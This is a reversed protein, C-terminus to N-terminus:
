FAVKPANGVPASPAPNSVCLPNYNTETQVICLNMWPAPGQTNWQYQDPHNTGEYSRIVNKGLRKIDFTAFGEGWLEVRRQWWVENVFTGQGVQNGGYASEYHSGYYYEPDRQKAFAELLAKGRSEDQRGAAEAEILMMEEVRMLPIDMVFGVHQNARGEEGGATRFKYEHGGVYGAWNDQRNPCQAMLWDPHDTYAGLAERREDPTELDDIAFDVFWGRRADTAPITSYLHRDILNPYGYNAAYGCGSEEPDIEICMESGWSTDADNLVILINNELNRTAFIWSSGQPSNFANLRDTIDDNSLMAHGEQALRAYKEAEEWKGMVLFARAKLGYVFNINPKYLDNREKDILKEAQDLDDIIHGWIVENTANPNETAQDLPTDHAVWPVTRAQTDETYTRPAYMQALDSYMMARIAYAQGAGDATEETPNDEYLALVTNCSKIYKYYYTWPVQCMLHQPGLYVTCQSWYLFFGFQVIDQGMVDRALMLAPYGFDWPDSSLDDASAGFEGGEGVQTSVTNVFAEYSDPNAAVQEATVVNSSGEFEDICGTLPLLLLLSAAALRTISHKM